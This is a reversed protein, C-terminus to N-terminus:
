TFTTSGSPSPNLDKGMIRYTARTNPFTIADVITTWGRKRYMQLAKTEVHLTSLAATRHPLGDLLRDHLASGCGYGQYRPHLALEVFEFCDSLWRGALQPGMYGTVIDHWWQGPASTYGYSFGVVEGDDGKRAAICKFGAREAHRSLVGAFGALDAILKNYPPPSFAAQYVDLFQDKLRNVEEPSLSELRLM